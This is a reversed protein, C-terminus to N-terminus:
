EVNTVIATAAGLALFTGDSEDAEVVLPGDGGWAASRGLHDIAAGVVWGPRRGTGALITTVLASTTTKGHTGAVAVTTRERTLGALAGSRHVVSVGGARAAVVDPDDDRTATSTVVADLDGPLPPRDPGTTVVVGAAGLMPLFPTTPAPDHGSVEHGSEALLTAVASMGAGGVNTVHVRRRTSLDLPAAPEPM